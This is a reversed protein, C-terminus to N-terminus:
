RLRRLAREPHPEWPAARVRAGGVSAGTAGARVPSLQVEVVEPLDDAVAALRVLVDELARRTVDSAGPFVATVAETADTDTLPLARAGASGSAPAEGGAPALTVLPGFVPDQVLGATATTVGEAGHRGDAEAATGGPHERLAIGYASVLHAVAAGALEVPHAGAGALAADVVRRAKERDVGELTVVRGEPRRRWAAYAAVRGLARAAAEPFAFAPVRRAAGGPPGLLGRHGLVCALLPTGPHAASTAVLESGVAEAVGPVPMTSIALCADVAPDDLLAAAARAFAAPPADPTLEVPNPLSGEVPLGALQEVTAPSLDALELGAAACSDAALVSPGGANAVIGVRNGAPLPQSALVSVVDFLEDLTDTRIVGTQRFLADVAADAQEAGHRGAARLGAVSRGSKVAVIPKRRSVRRAVRSFVRPNGFAEIYMGIVETAPDSDWYQLLDNGSVDAKNGASVFTSVGLGKAALEELLALGVGGSQSMVGIPGPSPQIDAFLAPLRVDPATNVVGLCNPGVLRMGADRVIRLLEAQRSAGEP